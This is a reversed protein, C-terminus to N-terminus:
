SSGHKSVPIECIWPRPGFSRPVYWIVVFARTIQGLAVPPMAKLAAAAAAPRSIILPEDTHVVGVYEAFPSGWTPIKKDKALLAARVRDQISECDWLRYLHETEKRKKVAAAREAYRREILERIEIGMRRGDELVFRWRGADEAYELRVGRFEIEGRSREVSRTGLDPEAPTDIVNGDVDYKWGHYFCRISGGEVWGVSLQTGRHACRFGVLHPDGGEGRYLTFDESMVRIPVARGPKLDESRYVPQWFMRMYTGALTGPGTHELEKYEETVERDRRKEGTVM